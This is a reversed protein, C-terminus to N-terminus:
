DRVRKVPGRWAAAVVAEERRWLVLLSSFVVFLSAEEGSDSL